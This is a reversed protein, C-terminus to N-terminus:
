TEGSGEGITPIRTMKRLLRFPWMPHFHFLLYCLFCLFVIPDRTVYETRETVEQEFGQRSSRCTDIARAKRRRRNGKKRM